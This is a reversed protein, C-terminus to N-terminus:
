AITTIVGLRRPNDTTLNGCTIVKFVDWFGDQPRIAAEGKMWYMYILHLNRNNLIYCTNAPCAPDYGFPIDKFMVNQGKFGRVLKDGPTTRILREITPTLSEYGQFTAQDAVAFTPNQEGIGNSCNNYTSTMTSLLISYATGSGSVQQNRFFSYTVRSILGITGTTPTASVLLQLGGFEKSSTGTGDSFLSTNMREEMTNKLNEIKRAQLDFKSAGGETIGTEFDTMPVDGGIFKWTYEANDFTDPRSVTLTELESMFKVNPNLAYEINHRIVTGNQKEFSGNSRLQELLWHRAFINDVPDTGVYAEWAAAVNQGSNIATHLLGDPSQTFQSLWRFTGLLM